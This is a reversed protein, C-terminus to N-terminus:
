PSLQKPRKSPRTVFRRWSPRCGTRSPLISRAGLTMSTVNRVLDAQVQQADALKADRQKLVENLDAIEKTRADLDTAVLRKAKQAEAAAIKAREQDIRTAVEADIAQRAAAL